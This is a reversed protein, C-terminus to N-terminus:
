QRKSAKGDSTHHWGDCLVCHYARMRPLGGENKFRDAWHNALKRTAYRFKTRCVLHTGRTVGPPLPYVTRVTRREEIQASKAASQAKIKAEHKEHARRRARKRAHRKCLQVDRNFECAGVLHGGSPCRFVDCNRPTRCSHVVRSRPSATHWSEATWHAATNM